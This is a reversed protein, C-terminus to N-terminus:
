HTGVRNSARDQTHLKSQVQRTADSRVLGKNSIGKKPAECLLVELYM